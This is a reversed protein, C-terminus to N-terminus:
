SFSFLESVYRAKRRGCHFGSAENAFRANGEKGRSWQRLQRSLEEFEIPESHQRSNTIKECGTTLTVHTLKKWKIRERPNGEKGRSRQIELYCVCTRMAYRNKWHKLRCSEVWVSKPNTVSVLSRRRLFICLLLNRNCIGFMRVGCDRDNYLCCDSCILDSELNMELYNRSLRLSDPVWQYSIM